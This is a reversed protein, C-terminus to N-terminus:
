STFSGLIADMSASTEYILREDHHRYPPFVEATVWGDYGIGRLSEQVAPWNVDGALLPTPAVGSHGVIRNDKLHVLRVRSGLVPIWHEPFGYWLANGTDLCAGVWPSDVEDLFRAFELPSVLFKGPCNEAALQVRYREGATRGLERLTELANRYAVNYPVIEPEPALTQRQTMCRIAFAEPTFLDAVVGLGDLFATCMLARDGVEAELALAPRLDPRIPEYPIALFRQVDDDDELYFKKIWQTAPSTNTICTLPGQPTAVTRELFAGDALVRDAPPVRGYFVGQDVNWQCFPDTEARALDLLPRYSPRAARWDGASYPYVGYLTIPMRDPEKGALATLLRERVNM